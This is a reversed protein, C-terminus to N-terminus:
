RLVEMVVEKDNFHIKKNGIIQYDEHGKGAILIVDKSNSIKIAEKIAKRRDVITLYNKKKVGKVIEKIIEEPEESRPNDSTIIVFDSLETAIKGMLPRKKKDRDGGCGFVTIVRGHKIDQISLLVKELADPTHAYDIVIYRNKIKMIELRGKVGKFKKIGERIKKYPIKEVIGASIAIALNYLNVRGYLPSFFEYEKNKHIVRFELGNLSIDVPIIRFDAGKNFGITYLTIRNKFETFLKKGWKDDINIIGYKNKKKSKELLEFLHKKAKYYNSMTRHFDLHDETLNTFIATKFNCHEVRYLSLSHSSVEMFVKKINKSQMKYLIKQLDLSEPTTTETKYKHSGIKYGMTGIVGAPINNSNFISYLLYSITTKGNTGTLGYLDLKLSPNKYFKSALASLVYRTNNVQIYSVPLNLKKEGVVAIAGNKIAESIYNHGDVKFGKIAVFIYNRKVKKSNYEIGKIEPNGRLEIYKVDIDSILNKLKM